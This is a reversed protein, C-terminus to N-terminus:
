GHPQKGAHAYPLRRRSGMWRCLRRIAKGTGKPVPAERNSLRPKRSQSIGCPRKNREAVAFQKMCTEHNREVNREKRSSARSFQDLYASPSQKRMTRRVADWFLSTNGGLFHHEAVDICLHYQQWVVDKKFDKTESTPSMVVIKPNKKKLKQWFGQMLQPSFSEAKKTRLDIPAAVQLGRRDLIASLDSNDSFMEWVDIQGECSLWMVPAGARERSDPLEELDLTDLPRRLKSINAHFLTAGTNVVAMSGKVAIIEVKLWKGSKRGQQIKSPDEQWYFM